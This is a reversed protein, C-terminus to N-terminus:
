VMTPILKPMPLEVVDERAVTRQGLSFNRSGLASGIANRGGGGGVRSARSPPPLTSIHPMRQLPLWSYAFSGAVSEGASLQARFVRQRM